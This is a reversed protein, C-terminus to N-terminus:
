KTPIWFGPNRITLTPQCSNSPPLLCESPLNQISVMWCSTSLWLTIRSPRKTLSAL